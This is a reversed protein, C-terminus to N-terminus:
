PPISQFGDAELDLTLLTVTSIQGAYYPVCFSFPWFYTGAQCITDKTLNMSYSFYYGRSRYTYSRAQAYLMLPEDHQIESLLMVPTDNQELSSSRAGDRSGSLSALLPNSRRRLLSFAVLFLPARLTSAWTMITSSSKSNDKVTIRPNFETLKRWLEGARPEGRKPTGLCALVLV